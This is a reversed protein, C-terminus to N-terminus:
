ESQSMAIVGKSAAKAVCFLAQEFSDAGTKGQTLGFALRCAIPLM